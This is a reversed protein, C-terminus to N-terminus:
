RKTKGTVRQVVYKAHLNQQKTSQSNKKPSRGCNRCASSPSYKIPKKTTRIQALYVEPAQTAPNVTCINANVIEAHRVRYVVTELKPEDELNQIVKSLWINKMEAIIRDRILEDELPVFECLKALNHM